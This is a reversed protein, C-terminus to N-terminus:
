LIEQGTSIGTTNVVTIVTNGEVSSDSLNTRIEDVYHTSTIILENFSLEQDTELLQTKQPNLTKKSSQKILTITEASVSSASFLLVYLKLLAVISITVIFMMVLFRHAKTSKFIPMSSM